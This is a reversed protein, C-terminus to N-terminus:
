ITKILELAQGETFGEAVYALFMTRRAHAIHSGALALGQWIEVQARIAEPWDTRPAESRMPESAM